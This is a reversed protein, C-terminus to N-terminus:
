NYLHDLFCKIADVPSGLFVMEDGVWWIEYLNKIKDIGFEDNVYIKKERMQIYEKVSYDDGENCILIYEIM